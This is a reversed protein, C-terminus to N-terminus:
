DNMRVPADPVFKRMKEALQHARCGGRTGLKNTAEKRKKRKIKKSVCLRWSRTPFAGHKLEDLCGKLRVGLTISRRPFTAAHTMEPTNVHWGRQQFCTQFSMPAWPPKESDTAPCHAWASSFPLLSILQLHLRGSNLATKSNNQIQFENLQSRLWSIHQCLWPFTCGSCEIVWGNM